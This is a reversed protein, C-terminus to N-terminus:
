DDDATLDVTEIESYGCIPTDDHKHYYHCLRQEWPAKVEAEYIKRGAVYKATRM